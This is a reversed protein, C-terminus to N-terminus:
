PIYLTCIEFKDKMRDEMTYVLYTHEFHTKINKTIAIVWQDWEWRILQNKISKTKSCIIM